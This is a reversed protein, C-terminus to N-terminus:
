KVEVCHEWSWWQQLCYFKRTKFVLYYEETNACRERKIWQDDVCVNIGPSLEELSLLSSYYVHQAFIMKSFDIEYRKVLSVFLIPLNTDGCRYWGVTDIYNPYSPNMLTERHFVIQISFFIDMHFFFRSNHVQDLRSISLGFISSNGLFKVHDHSVLCQM